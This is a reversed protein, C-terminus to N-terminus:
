ARLTSLGYSYAVVDYMPFLWVNPRSASTYLEVAVYPRALCTLWNVRFSANSNNAIHFDICFSMTFVICMYVLLSCVLFVCLFLITVCGYLSVLIFDRVSIRLDSVM